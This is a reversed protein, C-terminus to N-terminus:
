LSDSFNKAALVGLIAESFGELREKSELIKAITAGVKTYIIKGVYIKNKWASGVKTDEGNIVFVEDGNKDLYIGEENFIILGIEELKRLERFSFKYETWFNDFGSNIYEIFPFIEETSKKYVTFKCIKEFIKAEEYGIYPLVNFVKKPVSNLTNCEEALIKGWIIKIEDDCINKCKEMFEMLWSDDIENPTADSKLNELAIQM